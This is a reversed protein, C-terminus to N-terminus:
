APRWVKRFGNRILGVPVTEGNELFATTGIGMVRQPKGESDEVILALWASDIDTAPLGQPANPTM